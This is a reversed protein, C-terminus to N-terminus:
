VERWRGGDNRLVFSRLEGAIWRGGGGAAGGISGLTGRRAGAARARGSGRRRCAWGITGGRNGRRSGGRRGCRRWWRCRRAGARRGRWGRGGFTAVEAVSSRN